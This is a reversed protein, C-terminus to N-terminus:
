DRGTPRVILGNLLMERMGRPLHQGKLRDGRRLWELLMGDMMAILIAAQETAPVTRRISGDRYGEELVDKVAEYVTNYMADLRTEIRDGTGAFELSMLIPLFITDRQDAGVRAWHHLYGILREPPSRSSDRLARVLPLVVREEARDILALLVSAKERFHFYVAGKTLSAAAAIDEVTTVAYGRTVFLREAASLMLERSKARRLKHPGRITAEHEGTKPLQETDASKLAELRERYAVSTETAVMPAARYSRDAEREPM